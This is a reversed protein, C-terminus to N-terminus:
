SYNDVIIWTLIDFTEKFRGTSENFLIKFNAIYKYM